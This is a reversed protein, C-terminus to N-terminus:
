RLTAPGDPVLAKMAAAIYAADGDGFRMRIPIARAAARLDACAGGLGSLRAMDKETTVLLAGAAGMKWSTLEAETELTDGLESGDAPELGEETACAMPRMIVSANLEGGAAGRGEICGGPVGPTEGVMAGGANALAHVKVKSLGYRDSVVELISRGRIRLLRGDADVSVSWTGNGDSAPIPAAAGWKTITSDSASVIGGSVVVAGKDGYVVLDDGLDVATTIKGVDSKGLNWEPNDLAMSRLEVVGSGNYCAALAAIVPLVFLAKARMTM